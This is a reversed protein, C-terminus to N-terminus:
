KHIFTYFPTQHCENFFVVTNNPVINVRLFDMVALAGSKMFTESFGLVALNIFIFLFIISRKIKKSFCELKGIKYMGEGVLIFFLPLMPM